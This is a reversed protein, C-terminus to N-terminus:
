LELSSSGPDSDSHGPTACDPMPESQGNFRAGDAGRQAGFGRRVRKLEGEISEYTIQGPSAAHTPHVADAFLVAKGFDEPSGALV